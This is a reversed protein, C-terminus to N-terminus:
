TFLGMTPLVGNHGWSSTCSRRQRCLISIFYVSRSITYVPSRPASFWSWFPFFSLPLFSPPLSQSPVTIFPSCAPCSIGQWMLLSWRKSHRLPYTTSHFYLLLQHKGSGGKRPVLYQPSHYPFPCVPFEWFFLHPFSPIGSKQSTGPILSLFASSGCKSSLSSAM